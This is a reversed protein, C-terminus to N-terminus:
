VIQERECRWIKHGLIPHIMISAVNYTRLPYKRVHCPWFLHFNPFNAQWNVVVSM